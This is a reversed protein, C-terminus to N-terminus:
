KAEPSQPAMRLWRAPSPPTPADPASQPSIPAPATYPRRRPPINPSASMRRIIPQATNM